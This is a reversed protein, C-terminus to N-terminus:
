LTKMERNSHNQLIVHEMIHHIAHFIQVMERKIASDEDRLCVRFGFICFELKGGVTHPVQWARLWGKWGRLRMYRIHPLKAHALKWGSELVPFLGFLCRILVKRRGKVQSDGAWECTYGDIRM